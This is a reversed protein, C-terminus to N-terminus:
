WASCDDGVLLPFLDTLGADDVGICPLPQEGQRSSKSLPRRAPTSRRTRQRRSRCAAGDLAEPCCRTCCRGDARTPPEPTPDCLGWDTVKASRGVGSLGCQNRYSGVVASIGDLANTAHDPRVGAAAQPPADGVEYATGIKILTPEEGQGAFFTIAIPMPHPLKTQKAGAPLVSIYNTRAANLAYARSTCRRRHVRGPGRSQPIQFFPTIGDLSTTGVNPGQIKPRRCPTRRTCSRRRHRERVDGQLLAM